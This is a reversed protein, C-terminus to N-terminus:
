DARERQFLRFIKEAHESSRKGEWILKWRTRVPSEDEEGNNEIEVIQLESDSVGRVEVRRMPIDAETELMEQEEGGTGGGAMLTSVTPMAGQLCAFEKHYNALTAAAPDHQLRHSGVEILLLDCDEIDNMEIRKTLLDAHYELMAREPYDLELSALERDSAPLAKKLSTFVKRYSSGAEIWPLWLTTVLCWVLIVGITWSAVAPSGLRLTRAAAFAWALTYAVAVAFHLAIFARRYDPQMDYLKQALASPHGTVLVIWATWLIAAMIGFLAVNSKAIIREARPSLGDVGAAAMVSLPILFPLTYLARTNASLGIVVLMVLLLVLPLQFVPHERWTKRHRWVALLALPLVPLALRHLYLHQIGHLLPAKWERSGFFRGLNQVWLWEEFLEPARRYLAYPWILLWPLSAAAAILLSLLYGRRRWTGFLVPLLIATVGIVGPALLGKSLFGIGAGTGIWFGGSAARRKALALGYFAAAFGALLATDTILAHAFFQLATSGMLILVAPVLYRDGLLERAALGAFLLTLLLYIASALRQADRPQLAPSLLRTLGAATAFYLPPKDMFPEGAVTSVVWDGTKVMNNVVGFTYGEDNTWPDRGVLGPIIWLLFLVILVIKASAKM